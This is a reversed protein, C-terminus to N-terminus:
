ELLFFIIDKYGNEAAFHLATNGDTDCADTNIKNSVLVKVVELNGRLTAIHLSNRNYKTVSNINAHHACLLEVL